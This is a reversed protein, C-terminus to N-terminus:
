RSFEKSRRTMEEYEKEKKMQKTEEIYEKDEDKMKRLSIWRQLIIPYRYLWNACPYDLVERIFEGDKDILNELVEVVYSLKTEQAVKREFLSYLYENNRFFKAMHKVHDNLIQTRKLKVLVSFVQYSNKAPLKRLFNILCSRGVLEFEDCIKIAFRKSFGLLELARPLCSSQQPTNTWHEAAKHIGDFFFHYFIYVGPVPESLNKKLYRDFMEFFNRAKETNNAGNLLNLDTVFELTDLIKM